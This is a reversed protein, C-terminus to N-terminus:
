EFNLVDFPNTEINIITYFNCEDCKQRFKNKRENISRNFHANTHLFCVQENRKHKFLPQLKKHRRYYNSKKAVLPNKCDGIDM